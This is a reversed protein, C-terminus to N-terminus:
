IWWTQFLDIEHVFNMIFDSKNGFMLFGHFRVKQFGEFKRGKYKILNFWPIKTKHMRNHVFSANKSKIKFGVVESKLKFSILKIFASILINFLQGWPRWESQRIMSSNCGCQFSTLTLKIFVFNISYAAKKSNLFIRKIM